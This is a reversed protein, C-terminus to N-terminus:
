SSSVNSSAAAVHGANIASKTALTAAFSPSFSDASLAPVSNFLPPAAAVAAAAEEEEEAAEEEEEAAPTNLSKASPSVSDRSTPRGYLNCETSEHSSSLRGTKVWLGQMLIELKLTKSEDFAVRVVVGLLHKARTLNADAVGRHKRLDGRPALRVV